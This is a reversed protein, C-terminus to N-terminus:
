LVWVKQHLFLDDTLKCTEIEFLIILTILSTEIHLHTDDPESDTVSLTIIGNTDRFTRPKLIYDFYALSTNKQGKLDLYEKVEFSTTDGTIFYGFFSPFFFTTIVLLNLHITYHVNCKQGCAM